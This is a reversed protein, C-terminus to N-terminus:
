ADAAASDVWLGGPKAAAGREAADLNFGPAAHKRLTENVLGM